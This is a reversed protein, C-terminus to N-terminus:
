SLEGAIYSLMVAKGQENFRKAVFLAELVTLQGPREELYRWDELPVRLVAACDEQSMGSVVRARTLWNEM